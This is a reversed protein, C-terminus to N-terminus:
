VEHDPPGPHRADSTIFSLRGDPELVAVRIAHLGAIGQLRAAELLDDSTMRHIRLASPVVRGRHAVIVPRGELVRAAPRFRFSLFSMALILLVITSVAIVAGAVSTDDQVIAQEILDGVIVLLLLEFPTMETLERRGLVRLVGLVFVFVLAARLSIEM